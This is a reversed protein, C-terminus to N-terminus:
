GLGRTPLREWVEVFKGSKPKGTMPNQVAVTIDFQVQLTGGDPTISAKWSGHPVGNTKIVATAHRDDIRQVAWSQGVPTEDVLLPADRGDRATEITLLVLETGDALRGKFTLKRNGNAAAEIILIRDPVDSGGSPRVERLFWAGLDSGVAPLLTTVAKPLATSATPLSKM